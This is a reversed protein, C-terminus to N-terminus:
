LEYLSQKRMSFRFLQMTRMFINADNLHMYLLSRFRAAEILFDMLVNITKENINNNLATSCTYLFRFKNQSRVARDHWELANAYANTRM